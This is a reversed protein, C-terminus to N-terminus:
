PTDYSVPLCSSLCVFAYACRRSTSSSSFCCRFYLLPLYLYRSVNPGSRLAVRPLSFCTESTGCFFSSYAAFTADSRESRIGKLVSITSFRSLYPLFSISIWSRPFRKGGRESGAEGFSWGLVPAWFRRPPLEVPLIQCSLLCCCRCCSCLLSSLRKSGFLVKRRRIVQDQGARWLSRSRSRFSWTM